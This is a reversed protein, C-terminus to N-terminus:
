PNKLKIVSYNRGGRDGSRYSYYSAHSRTDIKSKEFVDIQLNLNKVENHIISSLDVYFKKNKQEVLNSNLNLNHAFLIKQAVDLDVEFSKQQIHPGIHLHIPTNKKLDCAILSKSVIKQEVGRWGVHIALIKKQDPVYILVPMCDATQIALTKDKDTTWQADAIQEHAHAEVCVDSHIQKLLCLQSFKKNISEFSEAKGFFYVDYHSHSHHIM